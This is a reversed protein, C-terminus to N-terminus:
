SAEAAGDVAEGIEPKGADADDSAEVAHSTDVATDVGIDRDFCGSSVEPIVYACDHEDVEWSVRATPPVDMAKPCGSLPQEAPISGGVGYGDCGGGIPCCRFGGLAPANEESSCGAGVVLLAVLTLRMSGRM